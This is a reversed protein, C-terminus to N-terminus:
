WSRGHSAGGRRDPVLPHACLRDSAQVACCLEMRCPAGGKVLSAIFRIIRPSVAWPLLAKPSGTGASTGASTGAGERAPASPSLAFRLAASAGAGEWAGKQWHGEEGPLVLLFACGAERVRHALRPALRLTLRAGDLVVLGFAGAGLLLEACFPGEEPAPPRVVTLAGSRAAEAWDAAALSRGADVLAVAEGRALAQRVLARLLTASGGSRACSWEIIKGKPLGERPLLQGLVAEDGQTDNSPAEHAPKAAAADKPSVASPFRRWLASM